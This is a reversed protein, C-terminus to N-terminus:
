IWVIKGTKPSRRTAAHHRIPVFDRGSSRPTLLDELAPDGAAWSWLLFSHLGGFSVIGDHRAVWFSDRAKEKIGASLRREKVNGVLNSHLALTLSSGTVN